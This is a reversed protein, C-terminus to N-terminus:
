SRPYVGVFLAARVETDFAVAPKTEGVVGTAGPELERSHEARMGIDGTGIHGLTGRGVVPQALAPRGLHQPRTEPQPVVATDGVVGDWRISHEFCRCVVGPEVGAAAVTETSVLVGGLRDEVTKVRAVDSCAGWGRKRVTRECCMLCRSDATVRGRLPIVGSRKVLPDSSGGRSLAHSVIISEGQVYWFVIKDLWISKKPPTPSALPLPANRAM